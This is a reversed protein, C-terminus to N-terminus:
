PRFFARRRHLYVIATLNLILIMVVQQVLAFKMGIMGAESNPPTQDFPHGFFAFHHRASYQRMFEEHRTLTEQLHSLGFGAYLLVVAMQVGLWAVALTRAWARRKLIGYCACGLVIVEAVAFVITVTQSFTYPGVFFPVPDTLTTLQGVVNVGLFALLVVMGGPFRERGM